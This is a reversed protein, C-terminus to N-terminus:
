RHVSCKRFSVKSSHLNVDGCGFLYASGVWLLSLCSVFVVVKVLEMLLVRWGQWRDGAVGEPSVCCGLDKSAADGEEVVLAPVEKVASLGSGLKFDNGVLAVGKEGVREASQVAQDGDTGEGERVDSSRGELLAIRAEMAATRQRVVDVMQKMAQESDRRSRVHGGWIMSGLPVLVILVLVFHGARNDTLFFAFMLLLDILGHGCQLIALLLIGVILFALWKRMFWEDILASTM